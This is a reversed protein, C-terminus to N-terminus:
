SGIFSKHHQSSIHHVSGSVNTVYVTIHDGLPSPVNNVLATYSFIKVQEVSIHWVLTGTDTVCTLTFNGGACIEVVSTNPYFLVLVFYCEHQYLDNMMSDCMGTTSVTNVLLLLWLFLSSMTVMYM